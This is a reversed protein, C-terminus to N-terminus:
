SWPAGPDSRSPTPRENVATVARRAAREVADCLVVPHGAVAAVQAIGAGMTGAGVVGIVGNM